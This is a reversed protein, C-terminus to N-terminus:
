GCAKQIVDQLSHLAALWFIYYNVFFYMYTGGLGCDGEGRLCM